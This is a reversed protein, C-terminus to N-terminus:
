HPSFDGVLVKLGLKAIATKVTDVGSVYTNFILLFYKEKTLKHNVVGSCNNLENLM